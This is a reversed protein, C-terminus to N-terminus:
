AAFAPLLHKALMRMQEDYRRPGWQLMGFLREVGSAALHEGQAEVDRPTGAIFLRRALEHLLPAPIDEPPQSRPSTSAWSM